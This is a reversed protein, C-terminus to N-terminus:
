RRCVPRRRPGIQARPWHRNVTAARDPILPRLDSGARVSRLRLCRPPTWAAAGTNAILVKVKLPTASGPIHLVQLWKDRHPESRLKGALAVPHSRAGRADDPRALIQGRQAHALLRQKAAANTGPM